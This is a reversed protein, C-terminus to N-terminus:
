VASITSRRVAASLVPNPDPEEHIISVESWERMKSSRKVADIVAMVYQGDEFTAASSVADKIWGSRDEVRSFADRLASVMRFLGNIYPRQHPQIPANNVISSPLFSLEDTDTHFIEASPNAKSQGTVTGGSPDSRYTIFGQSGTVSFSIDFNNLGEQSNLTVAVLAGGNMEMNFSTFRDSTIRRISTEGRVALGRRTVGHVRTARQRIVASVVDIVHSGIMTLVGGGMGEECTWDYNKPNILSGLQVHIDCYNVEGILQDNIVNRVYQFSPLFRLSYAMVSILSPYYQAAHVMKLTESQSLGGPKDCLVHKGIGLAKVAIQAHLIPPCMIIILDVERKLLVDDVKSTFFPIELEEAAERAAEQTQAWVSDVKFGKARLYPVLVKMITGASIFIGIGPLM